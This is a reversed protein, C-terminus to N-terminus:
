FLDILNNTFLILEIEEEHITYFIIIYKSILKIIEFKKNEDIDKNIKIFFLYDDLIDIISYGKELFKYVYELAKSLNKNQCYETYSKLDKHSIVTCIEQAIEITIHKDLLKYKQLINLIIQISYDSIEIIYDIVNLDLQLKEKEIITEIMTYIKEKSKNPINVIFLRSQINEDVKYINNSTAILNFNHKWKDIYSQIIQQYSKDIQDIDDIILLKPKHIETPFQCFLKVESRYYQIGHDKINNLYLISNNRKSKEIDKFYEQVINKILVSKGSAHSGAFLLNLCNSTIMTKIFDIFEIDFYLDNINKSFYKQNFNLTM